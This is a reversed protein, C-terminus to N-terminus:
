EHNYRFGLAFLKNDICLLNGGNNIYYSACNLNPGRKISGMTVDLFYTQNTLKVTKGNDIMTNEEDDVDEPEVM